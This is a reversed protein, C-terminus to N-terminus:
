LLDLCTFKMTGTKIINPIIFHVSYSSFCCRQPCVMKKQELPFTKEITLRSAEGEKLKIPKEKWNSM